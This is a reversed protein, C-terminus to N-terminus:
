GARQGIISDGNWDPRCSHVHCRVGRSAQRTPVGRLQFGDEGPRAGPQLVLPIDEPLVAVAFAGGARGSGPDYRLVGAPPSDPRRDVAIRDLRLNDRLHFGGVDGRFFLYEILTRPQFFPDM